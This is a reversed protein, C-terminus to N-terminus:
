VEREMMAGCFPCFNLSDDLGVVTDCNSCKMHTCISGTRLKEWKGHAQKYIASEGLLLNAGFVFLLGLQEKPKDINQVIYDCIRKVTGKYDEM